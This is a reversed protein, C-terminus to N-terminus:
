IYHSGFYMYLINLIHTSLLPTNLTHHKHICIQFLFQRSSYSERFSQWLLHVATAVNERSWWDGGGTNNHEMKERESGAKDKHTVPGEPGDPGLPAPQSQSGM